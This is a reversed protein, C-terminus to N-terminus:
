TKNKKVKGNKYLWVAYEDIFKLFTSSPKVNYQKVYYELFSDLWWYEIGNFKVNYARPPLKVNEEFFSVNIDSDIIKYHEKENYKNRLIHEIVALKKEFKEQGEWKEKNAVPENIKKEWFGEIHTKTNKKIM